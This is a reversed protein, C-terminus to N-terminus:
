AGRFQLSDLTDYIEQQRAPSTSVGYIVFAQFVRGQDEFQLEKSILNPFADTVCDRADFRDPTFRTPRHETTAANPVLDENPAPLPTWEILWIAADDAAMTALASAPPADGVCVSDHAEASLPFTSVTLIEHPDVLQPALPEAAQSWGAPVEVTDGNADFAV